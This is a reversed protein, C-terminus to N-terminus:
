QAHMGRTGQSDGKSNQLRLMTQSSGSPDFRSDKLHQLSDQVHGRFKARQLAEELPPLTDDDSCSVSDHARALYGWCILRTRGPCARGCTGQAEIRDDVSRTTFGRRDTVVASKPKFKSKSGNQLRSGAKDYLPMAQNQSTAAASGRNHKQSGTRQMNPRFDPPLWFNVHRMDVTAM